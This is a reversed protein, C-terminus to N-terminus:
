RWPSLHEHILEWRNDTLIFVNTARGSGTM